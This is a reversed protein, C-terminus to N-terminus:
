KKARCDPCLLDNLKGSPFEKGCDRCKASNVRRAIAENYDMAQQDRTLAYDERRKESISSDKAM